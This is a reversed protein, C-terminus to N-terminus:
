ILYSAVQLVITCCADIGRPMKFMLRESCTPFTLWARSKVNMEAPVSIMLVGMMGKIEYSIGRTLKTLPDLFM